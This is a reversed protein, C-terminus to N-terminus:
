VSSNLIRKPYIYSSRFNVIIGLKKSLATLYRKVQYYDDKSIVKKSKLELIIKNDILFDVKNRGAKEGDFIPPLIKEREYKIGSEKLLKEVFDSYQGESCNKGLTNHTKFLIGNIIYSLEPYIIKGM